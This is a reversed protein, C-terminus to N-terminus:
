ETIVRKKGISKAIDSFILLVFFARVQVPPKQPTSLQFLASLQQICAFTQKALEEQIM